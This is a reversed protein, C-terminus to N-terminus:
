RLVALSVSADQNATVALSDYAALLHSERYSGGRRLGNGTISGGVEWFCAFSRM